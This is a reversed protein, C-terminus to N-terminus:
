PFYSTTNTWTSFVNDYWTRDIALGYGTDPRTGKIPVGGDDCNFNWRDTVFM